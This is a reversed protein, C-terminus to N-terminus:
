GDRAAGRLDFRHVSRRSSPRPPPMRVFHGFGRRLYAYRRNTLKKVASIATGPGVDARAALEHPGPIRYGVPWRGSDIESQMFEALLIAKTRNDTALSPWDVDGLTIDGFNHARNYKPKESKIANFEAALADALTDHWEVRYDTAEQDWRSNAHSERRQKVDGTIGIYLPRGDADLYRYLATREIDAM